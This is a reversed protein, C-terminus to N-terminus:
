RWRRSCSSASCCRGARGTSWTRGSPVGNMASLVVTDPGLLPAIAAPISALATTKVSLIVLDQPGLEVASDSAAVPVARGREPDKADRLVLGRRRVAALTAGRALASVPRGGEILRHAVFGGISGLGVICVKDM